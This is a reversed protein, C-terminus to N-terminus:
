ATSLRAHGLTRLELGQLIEFLGLLLAYAAIVWALGILAAVPRLFLMLGFAVTVVGFTDSPVPLSQADGEAIVIRSDAKARITKARGIALM